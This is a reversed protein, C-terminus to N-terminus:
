LSVDRLRDAEDVLDRLKDVTPLADEPPPMLDGPIYAAPKGNRHKGHEDVTLDRVYGTAIPNALRRSVASKDLKLAEAVQRLSVGVAAVKPDTCLATVTEVAERQAGTLGEQQAAAFSEALLDRILAYDDLTAVIAGDPERPRQAQYLLACAAILGFLKSIDRRMRIAAVPVHEALVAAWPVRVRQEGAVALWEQLAHFPALDVTARSQGAQAQAIGRVIARTQTPTDLVTLTLARTELEGDLSARTTSTVLMTPGETVIERAVQASNDGDGEKEVTGIHLRGESLLSRMIYAGVGEAIGGAEYLVVVRHRLDADSYVLFKASISTYDVYASPPILSIVMKILFSKGGSSPGKVICSVPREQLRSTMALYLLLANRREGILGQARLAAAVKDLLNPDQAIVECAQWLTSPDPEVPAVTDTTGAAAAARTALEQPLGVSLKLL